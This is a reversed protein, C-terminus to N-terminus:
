AVLVGQLFGNSLTVNGAWGILKIMVDQNIAHRESIETFNRASHPQYYLFDTNLMYMTNAPAGGNYAGDIIVPCGALFMLEGFGAQATDSTTFRQNAQLSALYKLYFANDAIAVKPKNGGRVCRYYLTNMYSTINAQTVAAGGDTVGSFKQNRWFAGATTSRDIGGYIGVTPTGSVAAALGGIAKGGNATGDGYLDLAIKNELSGYANDVREKLLNIAQEKGSNMLLELGSVTVSAAYQVIPFEAMTLVDQPTIDIPDYGSYSNATGNQAFALSKAITRGGGFPMVNGKKKLFRLLGNNNTYNDAVENARNRLTTTVIESAGPTGLAM